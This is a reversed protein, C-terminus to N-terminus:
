PNIQTPNTASQPIKIVTVVAVRLFLRWWGWNAEESCGGYGPTPNLESRVRPFSSVGCSVKTKTPPKAPLKKSADEARERKKEAELRAKREEEAQKAKEAEAKKEAIQQRRLELEKM